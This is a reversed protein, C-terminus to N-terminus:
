LKWGWFSLFQPFNWLDSARRNWPKLSTYFVTGTDRSDGLEKDTGVRLDLTWWGMFLMEFPKFSNKVYGRHPGTEYYFSTTGTGLPLAKLKSIPEINAPVFKYNSANRAIDELYINKVRHTGHRLVVILRYTQEHNGPYVLKGPLQEGYVTQQKENWNDPYAQRPLYSTPVMGLYCGCTHVTTVLVPQNGSNLTIVIFLGSNAGATLYFPILSYPVHEFHIRYILNRYVNQGITFSQEQAYLVSTTPDVFIKEKGNELQARPEGIKNYAAEFNEPMILPAYDAFQSLESNQAQNALYVPQPQYLNQNPLAVCSIITICTLVGFAKVLISHVRVKWQEPRM